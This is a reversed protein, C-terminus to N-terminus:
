SLKKGSKKFRLPKLSSIGSKVEQSVKEKVTQVEKKAEKILRKGEKQLSTVGKGLDKEYGEVQEILKEVLRKGEKTGLAFLGVGGVIGGLLFGLWFNSGKEKEENM